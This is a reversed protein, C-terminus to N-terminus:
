EESDLSARPGVRDGIRHTGPATEGPSFSGTGSASWESRDLASTLLTAAISGSVWM